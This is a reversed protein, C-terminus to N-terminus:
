TLPSVAILYVDGKWKMGLLNRDAPDVPLLRFASKIYIKALLCSPGLALIQPVAMERTIYMNLHACTKQIGDNVSRGKPYSLDVIFWRKGPQLNKPIVGFRSIQCSPLSLSSLPGVM